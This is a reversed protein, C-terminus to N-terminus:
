RISRNPVNPQSWLPGATLKTLLTPKSLLLEHVFTYVCGVAVTNTDCLYCDGGVQRERRELRVVGRLLLLAVDGSELLEDILGVGLDLAHGLGDALFGGLDHTGM